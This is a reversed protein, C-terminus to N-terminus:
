KKFIDERKMKSYDRTIINMDVGFRNAIKEIIEVKPTRIGNEWCSLTSRPVGLSDALEEQGINLIKRLYQINKGLYIAM